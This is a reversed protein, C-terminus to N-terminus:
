GEAVPLEFGVDAGGEPRNSAWIRGGMMEVIARAVFLGIGTGHRSSAEAVAGRQFLGFIDGASAPVGPGEDLVHVEASTESGSVVLTVRGAPGAYKAANDLLITMVEGIYGEDGAAAPVRGDSVVDVQLRPFRVRERQAARRAAHVLHVPEAVSGRRELTALRILQDVLRNLRDAEDSLAAAVERRIDADLGDSRLLESGGVISTIPTRLEHGLIGLFADRLREADHIATEDTVLAITGLPQGDSDVLLRSEARVVGSSGDGRELRYRGAAITFGAEGVMPRDDRPEDDTELRQDTTTVTARRAEALPTLSRAVAVRDFPESEARRWIRHLEHNAWLGDETDVLVGVPLAELALRAPLELTSAREGATDASRAIMM